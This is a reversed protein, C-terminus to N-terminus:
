RSLMGYVTPCLMPVELEIANGICLPTQRETCEAGIAVARSNITSSSAASALSSGTCNRLRRKLVLARPCATSSSTFAFCAM